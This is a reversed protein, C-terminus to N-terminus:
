YFIGLYGLSILWFLIFEIRLNSSGIQIHCQKSNDLGAQTREKADIELCDLSM